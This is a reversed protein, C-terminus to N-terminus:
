KSIYTAPIFGVLQLRIPSINELNSSTQAIIQTQNSHDLTQILSTQVACDVTKVPFKGFSTPVDICSHAQVKSETILSDNKFDNNSIVVNSVDPFPQSSFISNMSNSESCYIDMKPEIFSGLGSSDFPNEGCLYSPNFDEATNQIRLPNNKRVSRRKKIRLLEIHRFKLESFFDDFSDIKSSFVTETEFPNQNFVRSFAPSTSLEMRDINEAISSHHFRSVSLRPKVESLIGSKTPRCVFDSSLSATQSVLAILQSLDPPVICSVPLTADSCPAVRLSESALLFDFSDSGYLYNSM